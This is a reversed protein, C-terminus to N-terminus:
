KRKSGLIEIEKEVCFKYADFTGLIRDAEYSMDYEKFIEKLVREQFKIGKLLEELNEKLSPHSTYKKIAEEVLQNMKIEHKKKIKPLKLSILDSYAREIFFCFFATLAGTIFSLFIYFDM